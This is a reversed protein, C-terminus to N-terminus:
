TSDSRLASAAGPREYGTVVAWAAVAFAARSVLHSVVPQALPFDLVFFVLVLVPVIRPILRSRWLAIALIPIGLTACGLFAVLLVIGPLGIDAARLVTVAGAEEGALVLWYAAMEVGHLAALGVMAFTLLIAAVWALRRSDRVSLAAMAAFTGILFPIALFGLAIGVGVIAQNEGWSAIRLAPDDVLEPGILFAVAQLLPGIVVIAALAWRARGTFPHQFQGSSEVTVVAM